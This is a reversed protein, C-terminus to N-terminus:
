STYDELLKSLEVATSFPIGKNLMEEDTETFLAANYPLIQLPHPDSQSYIALHGDSLGLYMTVALLMSLLNTSKM